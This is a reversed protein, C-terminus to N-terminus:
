SQQRAPRQLTIPRVKGDMLCNIMNVATNIDCNQPQM